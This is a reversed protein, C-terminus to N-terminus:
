KKKPPPPPPALSALLEQTAEAIEAEATQRAVTPFGDGPQEGYDGFSSHVAGSIVVFQTAAPLKQKSAQIDEPTTLGDSDGYISMVRLNKREITSVPYSAYLVLGDVDPEQDALGAVAVGGLSHGGVAWYEIEPHVAMARAAHDSDLVALGLPDKLVIVLYGAEAVPRLLGAYARPDVRAGPAFVIGTTPKVEDNFEDREIKRMEFWTLRDAVRFEKTSRTAAVATESAPFPQAWSVLGTLAVCGILAPVAFLIRRIARRRLQNASRRRPHTSGGEQDQEGGMLLTAVSWVVAVLGVVAGAIGVILYAPHGALIVRWNALAIYAPVAIMVGGVILWVGSLVLRSTSGPQAM